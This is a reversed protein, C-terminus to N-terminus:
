RHAPSTRPSRVVAGDVTVTGNPLAVEALGDLRTTAGALRAGADITHRGGDLLLTGPGATAGGLALRMSRITLTAGRGITTTRALNLTPIGVESCCSLGVVALGTGTVTAGGLLEVTAGSTIDIEGPGGLVAPGAAVLSAPVGGLSRITTKSLGTKEVRVGAGTALRGRVQGGILRLTAPAQGAVAAGEIRGPGLANEQDILELAGGGRIPLSGVITATRGGLLRIRAGTQIGLGSTVPGGVNFTVDDAILDVQGALRGRVQLVVNEIAFGRPAGGIFRGTGTGDRRERLDRLLQARAPLRRGLEAM